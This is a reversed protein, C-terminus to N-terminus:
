KSAKDKLIEFIYYFIEKNEKKLKTMNTIFDKIEKNDM